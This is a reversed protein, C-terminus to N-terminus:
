PVKKLIVRGLTPLSRMAYFGSKAVRIFEESDRIKKIRWWVYKPSYYFSRFAKNCYYEVSGLPLNPTVMVYTTSDLAEYSSNVLYGNEIAWAHLETGPFPTAINFSAFDPKLSRAFDITRQMTEPTEYQNGFMFSCRADIGTDQTMQVITRVKDLDLNKKIIKQINPDGSEIGFCVQHCGARKMIALKEKTIHNVHTQCVWLLDLKRKLLGECIGMLHSTNGTFMDDSFFLERVGHDKVLFEIEELVNEPSRFRIKKGTIPNLAKSSCFTCNYPCGRSTIMYSAPHRKAIGKTTHYDSIRFLDYSPFPIEDLNQVAEGPPNRVVQNDKRYIIGRIESLPKGKAYDLMPLEAEGTFVVDVASYAIIDDPILRAHPGGVIVPVDPLEKKAIGSVRDLQGLTTSISTLGITQIEGRYKRFLERFQSDNYELLNDDHLVSRIGIGKLVSTLYAIGFPPMKPRFRNMIFETQPQQNLNIFLYM